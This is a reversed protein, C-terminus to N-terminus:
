TGLDRACFRQICPALQIAILQDSIVVPPLNRACVHSSGTDHAQSSATFNADMPEVFHVYSLDPHHNVLKELVYSFTPIPDKM